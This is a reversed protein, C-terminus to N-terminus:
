EGERFQVRFETGEGRTLAITGNLQDEVLITVLHLGLSNLNGFNLNEPIGVGNDAITLEINGERAHLAISIEGRIDGPFAHKLCNSVLENIILGCPIAADVGLSVNDVELVYTAKHADIGYSDFLRCVLQQIYGRVDINALDTSQYLKEHILAMSQIRNQSERLMDTYIRDRMYGSQLNLLSSIVQLNNKVRHHIERLLIEKEELSVKIKEEAKKRETVDRLISLIGEVRGNKKILRTSMEVFIKSGNKHRLGVEVLSEPHPTDVMKRFQDLAEEELSFFDLEIFNKGILEDPNYGFIDQVKGNVDLICGHRDMYIIEDNANEFITRFKEESEHLLEEEQKRDTIDRLVVAQSVLSGRWDELPSVRVDYTRTGEKEDVIIEDNQNQPVRIQGPWYPWIEHLPRGLIESHKTGILQQASPNVDVIRDHPDLVIVCDGMSELIAGRAVPVIDRPRFRFLSWAVALGAAPFLLVVVLNFPLPYLEMIEFISGLVAFFSVLLLSIIQWRYLHLSRFLVQALLLSGCLVLAYSYATHVWFWTGPISQSVVFSYETNLTTSKWILGHYENTVLILVTTVPMVCLITLNRLTVLHDRGTYQLTFVLWALSATVVPVYMVKSWFIKSSLDASALELTYGLIWISGALWILAMTKAAATRHRKWIYMGLGALIASVVLLPITYPTEQWAM